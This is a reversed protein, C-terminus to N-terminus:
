DNSRKRQKFIIKNPLEKVLQPNDKLYLIIIIIGIIPGLIIGTPLLLLDKITFDEESTISLILIIIGIIPWLILYIM